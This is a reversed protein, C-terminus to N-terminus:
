EANDFVELLEILIARVEKKFMADRCKHLNNIRSKLEDINKRYDLRRKLDDVNM